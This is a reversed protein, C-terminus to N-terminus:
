NNHFAITSKQYNACCFFVNAMALTNLLLSDAWAVFPQLNLEHYLACVLWDTHRERRGEREGKWQRFLLPFFIKLHPNIAVFHPHM